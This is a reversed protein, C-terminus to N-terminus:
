QRRACLIKRAQRAHRQELEHIAGLMRPLSVERVQVSRGIDQLLTLSL